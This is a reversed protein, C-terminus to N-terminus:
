RWASGRWSRAHPRLDAPTVAAMRQAAWVDRSGVRGAAPFSRHAARQESPAAGAPGAITIPACALGALLVSSGSRRM